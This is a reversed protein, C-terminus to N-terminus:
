LHKSMLSFHVISLEDLYYLNIFENLKGPILGSVYWSKTLFSEAKWM